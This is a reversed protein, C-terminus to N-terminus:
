ISFFFNSSSYHTFFVNKKLVLFQKFSSGKLLQLSLMSFNHQKVFAYRCHSNWEPSRTTARPGRIISNTPHPPPPPLPCFIIGYYISGGRSKFLCDYIIVTFLTFHNRKIMFVQFICKWPIDGKVRQHPNTQPPTLINSWLINARGQSQGPLRLLNSPIIHFTKPKKIM